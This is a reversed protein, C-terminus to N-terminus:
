LEQQEREVLEAAVALMDDFSQIESGDTLYKGNVV